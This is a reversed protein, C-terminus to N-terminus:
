EKTTGLYEDIVEAARSRTIGTMEIEIGFDQGQIEM